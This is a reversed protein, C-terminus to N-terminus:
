AYIEDSRKTGNKGNLLEAKQGTFEEWRKIIVDVYKPDIEMGYCIRNTKECAILTTGVGLFNDIIKADRYTMVTLIKEPLAVPFTAAHVKSFENNRQPPIDFVNSVTGRFISIKISRSPNQQGTFIVILEFASNMVNSAMAPAGHGKNWIAIDVIQEAYDGLIKLFATKNGALMQINYFQYESFGIVANLSSKILDGWVSQEKDDDYGDQYKNDKTHTNGSLTESKGANYPPSCFVMEAKDGNMLQEICNVDTSDGCMVRHRGLQWIDGRQTIPEEPPEPVVDDQESAEIPFIADLEASTFGVDALLDKDFDKLLDLNWEGTNKNLRLNLEREEDDTLARNPVRVDVQTEGSQKLIYYRQHGGIIKNDTNIIIPDALQFKDLSAKLQAAQEDTIKRPNYNAPFIDDISKRSNSWEIKKLNSLTNM